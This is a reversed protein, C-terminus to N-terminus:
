LRRGALWPMLMMPPPPSRGVLLGHVPDTQDRMQGRPGDPEIDPNLLNSSLAWKQGNEESWSTYPELGRYSPYQLFEEEPRAQWAESELQLSRSHKKNSETREGSEWVLYRTYDLGGRGHLIKHVMAMDAQHRRESLTQLDMERLRKEYINSKLGSIVYTLRM